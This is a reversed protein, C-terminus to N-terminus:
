GTEDATVALKIGGFRENTIERADSRQQGQPGNPM